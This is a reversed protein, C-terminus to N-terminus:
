QSTNSNHFVSGSTKEFVANVGPIIRWFHNNVFRGSFIFNIIFVMKLVIRQMTCVAHPFIVNKQKNSLLPEFLLFSSSTM